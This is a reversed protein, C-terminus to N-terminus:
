RGACVLCLDLIIRGTESRRYSGHDRLTRSTSWLWKLHDRRNGHRKAYIEHYASRTSVLRTSEYRRVKDHPLALADMFVFDAGVRCAVHCILL